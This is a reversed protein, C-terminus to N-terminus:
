VYFDATKESTATDDALHDKDHFTLCTVRPLEGAGGLSVTFKCIGTNPYQTLANKKGGPVKCGLEDILYGILEKLLGGHAVILVEALITPLIDGEDFSNNRGSSISSVSSLRHEFIPSLSVNPCGYQVGRPPTVNSRIDSDVIPYLIHEDDDSFSSSSSEQSPSIDSTPLDPSLPAGSDVDQSCESPESHTESDATISSCGSSTSGSNAHGTAARTKQTDAALLDLNQDNIPFVDSGISTTNRRRKGGIAGEGGNQDILAQM